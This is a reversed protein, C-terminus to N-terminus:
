HGEAITIRTTITIPTAPEPGGGIYARDSFGYLRRCPATVPIPTTERHYRNAVFSEIDDLTDADWADSLGLKPAATYDVHDVYVEFLTVTVFVPLDALMWSPKGTDPVGTETILWGWHRRGAVVTSPLSQIETKFSM